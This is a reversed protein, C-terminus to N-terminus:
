KLQQLKYLTSAILESTEDIINHLAPEDFDARCAGVMSKLSKLMKVPDRELSFSSGTFKIPGYCGQYAEAFRDALDVVGDYFVNLAVHAAYSATQLHAVHAATRSNFLAMVLDGASMM